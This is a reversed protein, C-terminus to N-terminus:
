DEMDEIMDKIDGLLLRFMEPPLDTCAEDLTNEIEGLYTYLSKDM